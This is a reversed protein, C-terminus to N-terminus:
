KIIELIRKIKVIKDIPLIKLESNIEQIVKEKNEEMSYISNDFFYALPIDFRKGIKELTKPTPRFKGSEARSVARTSLEIVEAFEEQTLNLAKRLSVIKQAIHITIEKSTSKSDIKLM